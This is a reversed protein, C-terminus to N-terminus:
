GLMPSPNPLSGSVPRFCSPTSSAPWPQLCPLGFSRPDDHASATRVRGTGLHSECSAARRWMKLGAAGYIRAPLRGSGTGSRASRVVGSRLYPSEGFHSPTATLHCVTKGLGRDVRGLLSLSVSAASGFALARAQTGSAVVTSLRRRSRLPPARSHDVEFLPQVCPLTLDTGSSGTRPLM